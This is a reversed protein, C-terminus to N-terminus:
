HRDLDSVCASPPPASHPLLKGLAQRMLTKFSLGRVRIVNPGTRRRHRHAAFCRLCCYRQLATRPAFTGECAHCRM